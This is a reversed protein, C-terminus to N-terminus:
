DLWKDLNLILDDVFAPTLDTTSKLKILCGNLSKHYDIGITRILMKNAVDIGIQSGEISIMKFQPVQLKKSIEVYLNTELKKIGKIIEPSPIFDFYEDLHTKKMINLANLSTTALGIKIGKQKLHKLIDIVGPSADRKVLDNTLTKFIKNKEELIEDKERKSKLEVDFHKLIQNLSNERNIGNLKYQFTADINIGIRQVTKKWSLFHYIDTDFIVGDFGFIVAELKNQKEM